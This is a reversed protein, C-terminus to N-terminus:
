IPCLYLRYSESRNCQTRPYNLITDHDHYETGDHSNTIHVVRSHFSKMWLQMPQYTGSNNELMFNINVWDLRENAFAEISCSM